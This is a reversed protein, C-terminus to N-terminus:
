LCFCIWIEKSWWKGGDCNWKERHKYLGCYNVDKMELGHWLGEM